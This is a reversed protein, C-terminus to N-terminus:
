WFKERDGAVLQVLRQEGFTGFCKTARIDDSKGINKCEKVLENILHVYLMTRICDFLMHSTKMFAPHVKRDLVYTGCKAEAERLLVSFTQM